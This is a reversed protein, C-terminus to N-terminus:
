ESKEKIGKLTDSCLDAGFIEKIDQLIYKDNVELLRYNSKIICILRKIAEKVDEKYFAEQEYLSLPEKLIKEKDSLSTSKM